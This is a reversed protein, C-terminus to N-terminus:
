PAFRQRYELSNVFANALDGLNIEGSDLRPLYSSYAAGDPNRSFFGYYASVVQAEHLYKDSVEQRESIERYVQARTKTNGNLATVWADHSATDVTVGATQLLADVYGLNTLGSYKNSFESRSMIDAVLEQKNLELDSSSLFGSVYALDGVESYQPIRGFGTRYSTQSSARFPNPTLTM